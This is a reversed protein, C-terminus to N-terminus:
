SASITAFCGNAAEHGRTHLLDSLMLGGTGSRQIIETLCFLQAVFGLAGIDARYPCILPNISLSQRTRLYFMWYSFALSTLERRVHNAQGHKLTNQITLVLSFLKKLPTKVISLQPCIVQHLTSGIITIGTLTTPLNM